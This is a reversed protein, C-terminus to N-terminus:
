RHVREFLYGNADRYIPRWLSNGLLYDNLPYREHTIRNGYPILVLDFGEKAFVDLGIPTTWLVHTYAAFQNMDLARGDIFIHVDPYTSWLLYGGWELNNFMRGQLGRSRIFDVAGEPFRNELLGSQFARGQKVGTFLLMVSVLTGAMWIAPLPRRIAPLSRSLGLAVYPGAVLLFFPIYRYAILSIGALFLVLFFHQMHERDALKYLSVLAASLAAWYYPLPDRLERWIGFPSLYESTRDQLVSGELQIVYLYSNMGNPSAVTFLIAAVIAVLVPGIPQGHLGHNLRSEISRSAAVLGLLSAGLVVGGHCNAWLLMLPPLLWLLRTRGREHFLDLLLFSASAFFFSFLQPREGTHNLATMGALCVMLLVYFPHAGVAIGRLYSILLCAGLLLAKFAIIGDAGLADFCEYLIVQGLWQSRLVTEARISGHVEYVSFPDVQPITSTEVIHKGSAIHWWFDIDWIKTSLFGLFAALLSLLFLHRLPQELRHFV